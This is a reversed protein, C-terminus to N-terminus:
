LSHRKTAGSSRSAKMAAERAGGKAFLTLAIDKMDPNAAFMTTDLVGNAIAVYTENPALTVPFTAIVDEASESTGPAM